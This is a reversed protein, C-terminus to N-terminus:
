SSLASLVLGREDRYTQIHIPKLWCVLVQDDLPVAVIEKGLDLLLYFLM